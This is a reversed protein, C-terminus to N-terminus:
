CLLIILNRKAFNVCYFSYFTKRKTDPVYVYTFESCAIDVKQKMVIILKNDRLLWFVAARLRTKVAHYGRENRVKYFYIYIHLFIAAKSIHFSM